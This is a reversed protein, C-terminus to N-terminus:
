RDGFESLLLDSLGRRDDDWLLGGSADYVPFGISGNERNIIPAVRYSRQLDVRECSIQGSGDQAEVLVASGITDPHPGKHKQVQQKAVMMRVAGFRDVLRTLNHWLESGENTANRTARLMEGASVIWYRTLQIQIRTRSHPHAQGSSRIHQAHEDEMQRLVLDFYVDNDGADHPVGDGRISELRRQVVRWKAHYPEQAQYAGSFGVEILQTPSADQIREIM